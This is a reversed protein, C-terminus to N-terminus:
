KAFSRVDERIIHRRPPKETETSNRKQKEGFTTAALIFLLATHCYRVNALFDNKCILIYLGVIDADSQYRDARGMPRSSKNSAKVFNTETKTFRCPAAM